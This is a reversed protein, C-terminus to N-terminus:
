SHETRWPCVALSGACGVLKRSETNDVVIEVTKGVVLEVNSGVVVVEETNDKGVNNGEVVEGTNGVM